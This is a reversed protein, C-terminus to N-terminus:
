DCNSIATLVTRNICPLAQLEFAIDAINKEAPRKIIVFEGSNLGIYWSTYKGDKDSYQSIRIEIIKDMQEKSIEM